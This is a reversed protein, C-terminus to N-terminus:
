LRRLCSILLAWAAEAEPTIEDAEGLFEVDVNARKAFGEVYNVGPRTESAGCDLRSDRVGEDPWDGQLEIRVSFNGGFRGDADRPSDYLLVRPLVHGIPHRARFQEYARSDRLELRVGTAVEFAALVSDSDFV